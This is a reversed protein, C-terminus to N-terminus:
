NNKRIFPDACYGYWGYMTYKGVNPLKSNNSLTASPDGVMMNSFQCGLWHYLSSFALDALSLQGQQYNLGALCGSIYVAQHVLMAIAISHKHCLEWTSSSSICIWLTRSNWQWTPKGSTTSNGWNGQFYQSFRIFWRKQWSTTLVFISWRGGDFDRIM